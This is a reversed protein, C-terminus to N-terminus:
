KDSIWYTVVLQKGNMKYGVGRFIIKNSVKDRWLLSYIKSYNNLYEIELTGENLISKNSFWICKYDGILTDIPAISPNHKKRCIENLIVGGEPINTYIGNLCNDLEIDYLVIGLFDNSIM